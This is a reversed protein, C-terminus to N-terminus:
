EAEVAQLEEDPHRAAKRAPRKPFKEGPQLKQYLKRLAEIELQRVRERTLGVKEGIEKLTLPEVGDLGYRLKLITAERETLIDLLRRLRAVSEDHLMNAHPAPTRQDELLDAYSVSEGDATLPAQTPRQFARVANRIIRVKKPPLQMRHAMENISPQRGLESELEAAARKWKSILEVMYAPVHIPQVANILARKIGQKIWWSGYTSFRAGQDPDFSEVARVLGINGEEILDALSLGRNAYRKAISVVLRLNARIMRDRSEACNRGLINRALEKEEAATLLPTQNIQRLYIQISSQIEARPM